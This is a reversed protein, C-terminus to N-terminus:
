KQFHKRREENLERLQKDVISEQAPEDNTYHEEDEFRLKKEPSRPRRDDDSDSDKRPEM